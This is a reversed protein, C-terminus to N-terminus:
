EFSIGAITVASTNDDDAPCRAYGHQSGHMGPLASLALWTPPFGCVNTRNELERMSTLLRQADGSCMSDLVYQDDALLQAEAAADLAPGDFAPGVHALDGSILILTDRQETVERLGSLLAQLGPHTHPDAGALYDAFSGCLIPVVECPQGARMHHLWTLVLEISHEGRHYLEAAYAQDPGIREALQDIIVQNTPLMGYPTAYNQQTLTIPEPSYHDTALVIVLEAQRAVTAMSKWIQAYIHGGRAFDIHPSLMARSHPSSVELEGAQSLFHDLTQQLAFADSPYSKGAFAAPRYPQSRYASVAAARAQYFNENELLLAQDLAELLQRLLSPGSVAGLHDAFSSHLEEFSSSGDFLLLLPGLAEPLIVGQESLGLPDNLLWSAGQYDVSRIPIARLRPGRLGHPLKSNQINFKSNLEDFRM